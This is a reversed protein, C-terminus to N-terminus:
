VTADAVLIVAFTGAFALLPFSETVVAAPVEVLEVLKV